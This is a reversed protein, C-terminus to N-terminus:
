YIPADILDADIYREHPIDFTEIIFQYLVSGTSCDGQDVVYDDGATMTGYIDRLFTHYMSQNPISDTLSM